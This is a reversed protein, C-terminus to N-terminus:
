SRVELLGEFSCQKQTRRVTTELKKALRSQVRNNLGGLQRGVVYQRVEDAHTAVYILAEQRQDDFETLGRHNYAITRAANTAATMVGPLNLVSWDAPQESM